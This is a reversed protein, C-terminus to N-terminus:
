GARGGGEADPPSPPSQSFQRRTSWQPIPFGVRRTEIREGEPDLFRRCCGDRRAASVQEIDRESAM